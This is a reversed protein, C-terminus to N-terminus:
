LKITRYFTEMEKNLNHKNYVQPTPVFNLNKNLLQFTQTSFTKKSLNVIKM